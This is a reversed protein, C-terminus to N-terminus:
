KKDKKLVKFRRFSDFSQCRRPDILGLTAKYLAHEFVTKGTMNPSRFDGDSFSRYHAVADYDKKQRVLELWTEDPMFMEAVVTQGKTGRQKCHPCGGKRRFKFLECSLGFKSNLLETLEMIGDVAQEIKNGARGGFYIDKFEDIDAGSIACHQCLVSVLGQYVLLNLINPGTLVERSMGISKDTLRPIIGSILHAHTTAIGLHGTETIATAAGATALDRIEGILLGDPDARVIGAMTENFIIESKAPDALDRQIPIQHVGRLPYEIPDEAGYFAATGNDPHSEIYTKQTTTKGSGTIGAFLVLGSPNEASDRFLLIHSPAYGLEEYTLTPADVDINLVRCVVKPGAYGTLSQFRM